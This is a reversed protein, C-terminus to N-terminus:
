SKKKIKRVRLFKVTFFKKKDAALFCTHVSWSAIRFHAYEQWQRFFYYIAIEHGTTFFYFIAWVARLITFQSKPCEKNISLPRIRNKKTLPSLVRRKRNRLPRSIRAKQGSVLFITKGEATFFHRLDCNAMRPKAESQLKCAIQAM